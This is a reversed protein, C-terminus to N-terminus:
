ADVSSDVERPSSLTVASKRASSALPTVGRECVCPVGRGGCEGMRSGIRGAFPGLLYVSWLAKPYIRILQGLGALGVTVSVQRGSLSSQPTSLPRTKTFPPSDAQGPRAGRVRWGGIPGGLVEGAQSHFDPAAIVGVPCM